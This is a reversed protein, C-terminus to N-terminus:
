TGIRRAWLKTASSCASHLVVFVVNIKSHLVNTVWTCVSRGQFNDSPSNLNRMSKCDIHIWIRNALLCVLRYQSVHTTRTQYIPARHVTAFRGTLNEQPPPRGQYRISSFRDRRSKKKKLYIDLAWFTLGKLNDLELTGVLFYRHPFNWCRTNM